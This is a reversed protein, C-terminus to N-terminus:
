KGKIAKALNEADYGAKVGAMYTDTSVDRSFVAGILNPRIDRPQNQAAQRRGEEVGKQYNDAM